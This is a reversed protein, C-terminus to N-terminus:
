NSTNQSRFALATHYLVEVQEPNLESIINKLKTYTINNEKTSNKNQFYDLTLDFINCIEITQEMDPSTRDTEWSSITKQSVQLKRAFEEQTLGADNRIKRIKNGLTM